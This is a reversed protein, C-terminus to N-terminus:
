ETGEYGTNFVEPQGQALRLAKQREIMAQHLIRPMAKELRGLTWRGLNPFEVTVTEDAFLLLRMEGVVEPGDEVGSGVSDLLNESNDSSVEWSEEQSHPPETHAEEGAADEITWEESGSKDTSKGTSEEEIKSEIEQM